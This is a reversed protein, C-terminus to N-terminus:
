AEIKMTKNHHKEFFVKFFILCLIVKFVGYVWINVEWLFFEHTPKNYFFLSILDFLDTIALALFVQKPIKM